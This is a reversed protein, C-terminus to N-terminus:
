SFSVPFLVRRGRSSLSLSLSRYSYASLLLDCGARSLACPAEMPSRGGRRTRGKRQNCLWFVSVAGGGGREGEEERREGRAREGEGEGCTWDSSETSQSSVWSASSSTLSPDKSSWTTRERSLRAEDGEAEEDRAATCTAGPAGVNGVGAGPVAKADVALMSPAARPDAVADISAVMDRSSSSAPTLVSSSPEGLTPNSRLPRYTFPFRTPFPLATSSPASTFFPCTKPHTSKKGM